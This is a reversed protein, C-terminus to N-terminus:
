RGWALWLALMWVLPAIFTTALANLGMALGAYAGAEPDKQLLTATGIGHSSVGIGLGRAAPDSLHLIRLLSPAMVAGMMGTLITFVAAMTPLGGLQETIAMAVPATASKPALTALLSSPVGLFAAIAVASLSATVSGCLVAILIKGWARKLAPFQRKIPLALAVTAPGLLFHVFQAGEFYVKYPTSSVWLAPALLLIAILVPNALPSGKCLRHIYDGMWYAGLTLTLWILPAGQLYIWIRQLDIM